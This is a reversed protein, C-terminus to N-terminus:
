APETWLERALERLRADRGAATFGDKPFAESFPGHKGVMFTVRILQTVTSDPNFTSTQEQRTVTFPPEPMM